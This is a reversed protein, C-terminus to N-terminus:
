LAPKELNDPWQFPTPFLERLRHIRREGQLNAVLIPLDAAFENMMELCLGCPVAPPTTDTVVAIAQYERQGSAVATAIATREGCLTLGFTRNEVNCGQFIRGDAALLAAGVKFKSYPAYARTRADLAAQYLADWDM